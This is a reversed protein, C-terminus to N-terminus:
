PAVWDGMWMDDRWEFQARQHGPVRLDLWDIHDVVCRIVAFNARAWGGGPAGAPGGPDPGGYLRKNADSAREWAADAESDDCHVTATGELRIQVRAKRDYFLWSVRSASRIQKVKHSRADTYALLARCSADVGRLVVTRTHSGTSDATGLGPTRLLSSTEGLARELRLWLDSLLGKL